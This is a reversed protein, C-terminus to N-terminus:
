AQLRRAEADVAALDILAAAVAEAKQRKAARNAHGSQQVRVQKRGTRAQKRGTREQKRGTRDQTRGSRDRQDRRGTARAVDSGAATEALFM